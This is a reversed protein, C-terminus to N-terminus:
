QFCNKISYYLIVYINYKYIYNIWNDDMMDDMMDDMKCINNSINNNLKYKNNM